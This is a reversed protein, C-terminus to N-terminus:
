PWFKDFHWLQNFNQTKRNFHTLKQTFFIGLYYIMLFFTPDLEQNICHSITSQLAIRLLVTRAAGHDFLVFQLLESGVFPAPGLLRVLGRGSAEERRGGAAAFRRKPGDGDHLSETFQRGGIDGIGGVGVTIIWLRPWYCQCNFYYYYSKSILKKLSYNKKNKSWNLWILWNILLILLLSSYNLAQFPCKIVEISWNLRNLWSILLEFSSFSM